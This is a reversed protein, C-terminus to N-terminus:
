RMNEMIHTMSDNYCQHTQELTDWVPSEYGKAEALEREENMYAGRILKVGLNYGHQQASAVEMPILEGIRKTYAQYGNMIMAKSGQNFKHTLQQGFSEIGYQIFSQEADVYLSVNRDAAYQCFNITREKFYAYKQFDADTVQGVKVAIQRELQTQERYLHFLHGNKYRALATM